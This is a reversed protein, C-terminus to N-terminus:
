DAPMQPLLRGAARAARGLAAIVDDRAMIGVLRDDSGLVPLRNVGEREMAVAALSLPWDARVAVVRPTMIAGVTVEPFRRDLVLDYRLFPGSAQAHESAERAKALLDSRSVIGVVRDGEVVPAGAVGGRELTGPSRSMRVLDGRKPWRFALSTVM